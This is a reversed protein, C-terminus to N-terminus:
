RHVVVHCAISTPPLEEEGNKQSLSTRRHLGMVTARQCMARLFFVLHLLQVTWM